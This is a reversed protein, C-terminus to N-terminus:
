GPSFGLRAGLPPFHFFLSSRNNQSNSTVRSSTKKRFHFLAEEPCACFPFCTMHHYRCPKADGPFFFLSPDAPRGVKRFYDMPSFSDTLSFCFLGVMLHTLFLFPSSRMCAYSLLHMTRPVSFFQFSFSLIPWGLRAPFSAM